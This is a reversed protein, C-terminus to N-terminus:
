IEKICVIANFLLGLNGLEDNSDETELIDFDVLFRKIPKRNEDYDTYVYKSIGNFMGLAAIFQNIIEIRDSDMYAVFTYSKVERFPVVKTPFYVVNKYHANELNGTIFQIEDLDLDEFLEKFFKGIEIM